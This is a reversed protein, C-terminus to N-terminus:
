EFLAEGTETLWYRFPESPTRDLYGKGYAQSLAASVSMKALGVDKQAVDEKVDASKPHGNCERVSETVHYQGKTLETDEWPDPTVTHEFDSQTTKDAGEKHRQQELAAMGKKSLSYEYPNQGDRNIYGGHYLTTLSRTPNSMLHQLDGSEAKGHEDLYEVIQRAHTEAPINVRFEAMQEVFSEINKVRELTEDIVDRPDAEDQDSM